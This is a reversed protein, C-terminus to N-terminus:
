DTIGHQKKLLEVRENAHRADLQAKLIEEDDFAKQRAYIQHLTRNAAWLSERELDIRQQMRVHDTWWGTVLTFLLMLWCIQRLSFTAKRRKLKGDM